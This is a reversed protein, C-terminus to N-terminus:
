ENIYLGIPLSAFTQSIVRHQGKIEFEIKVGVPKTEEFYIVDVVVDKISYPLIKKEVEKNGNLYNCSIFDETVQFFLDKKWFPIEISSITERVVQETRFIQFDIREKEKIKLINKISSSLAFYMVTSILSVILLSVLTEVFSFGKNRNVYNSFLKAKRM